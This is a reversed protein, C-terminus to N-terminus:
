NSTEVLLVASGQFGAGLDLNYTGASLSKTQGPQIAYLANKVADQKDPQLTTLASNTDADTLFIAQYGSNVLTSKAAVPAVVPGNQTITTFTKAM